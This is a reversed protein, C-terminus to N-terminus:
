IEKELSESSPRRPKRRGIGEAQLVVLRKLLRRIYGGEIMAAWHGDCFREGRVCFTLMTKIQALTANEIFGETHLMESTEEIQYEFDCWCRQSALGFFEEVAPHYEPWPMTYVGNKDQTGGGWREIPAFGDAYLRPLFATLAEIDRKTPLRPKM